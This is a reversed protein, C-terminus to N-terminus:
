EDVRQVPLEALLRMLRDKLEELGAGELQEEVLEYPDRWGYVLIQKTGFVVANGKGDGVVLCRVKRLVGMKAMADMTLGIMEMDAEATDTLAAELEERTIIGREYADYFDRNSLRFLKNYDAIEYRDEYWVGM